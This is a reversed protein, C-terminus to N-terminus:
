LTKLFIQLGLKFNRINVIVYTILDINLKSNHISELFNKSFYNFTCFYSIHDIKGNKASIPMKFRM